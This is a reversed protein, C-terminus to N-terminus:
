IGKTARFECCDLWPGKLQNYTNNRINWTEVSKWTKNVKERCEAGIDKIPTNRLPHSEPLTSLTM